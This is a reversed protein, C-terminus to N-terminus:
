YTAQNTYAWIKHGTKKSNKEKLNRLFFYHNKKDEGLQISLKNDVFWDWINSSDENLHKFKMLITINVSLSHIMPMFFYIVNSLKHCTM